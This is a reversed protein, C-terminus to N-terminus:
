ASATATATPKITPVAILEVNSCSTPIEAGIYDALAFLQPSTYYSDCMIFGTSSTLNLVNKSSLSYGTTVPDDSAISISIPEYATSTNTRLAAQALHPSFKCQYAGYELRVPWEGIDNEPYTWLLAGTGNVYFYSTLSTNLGAAIGLGAGTHYSFIYLDNKDSGCDKHGPIVKTKLQFYKLAKRPEIPSAQSVGALTLTLAIVTSLFKMNSSRQHHDRQSRQPVKQRIKNTGCTYKGSSNSITNDLNGFVFNTPLISQLNLLYDSCLHLEATLRTISAPATFIDICHCFSFYIRSTVHVSPFSLYMYTSCLVM